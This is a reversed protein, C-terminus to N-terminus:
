RMVWPSLYRRTTFLAVPPPPPLPAPSPPLRLEDEDLPDDVSQSSTGTRSLIRSSLPMTRALEYSQFPLIGATAWGPTMAGDGAGTRSM